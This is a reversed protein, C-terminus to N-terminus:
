IRVMDYTFRNLLRGQPTSEFYGMPAGLVRVLMSAFVNKAARAGGTVSWLSRVITGFVSVLILLSFVTLYKYQAERGDTQAPFEIGFVNIPMEAGNTWRALWYEVAVYAFRDISMFLIQFSMFFFGGAHKFWLLWTSTSALGHEREEITMLNDATSELTHSKQAVPAVEFASSSTEDDEQVSARMFDIFQLVKNEVPHFSMLESWTGTFQNKGDVLVIINDVRNLFHSAHTVLVVAANCFLATRGKLLREFVLKATGADLASLPDDLIVLGNTACGARINEKETCLVAYAARALSVRQKQGLFLFFSSLITTQRVSLLFDNDFPKGGSLTIGREGIETLDNSRGFLELDTQLCCADLVRDYLTQDMSRGFLINERLTTNLIFADQTVLFLPGSTNVNSSATAALEGIIGNVFSSKGGGVPGCVALVEGTRVAVNFKSVEFM